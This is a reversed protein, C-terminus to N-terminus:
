ILILNFRVERDEYKQVLEDYQRELLGIKAENRRVTGTRVILM